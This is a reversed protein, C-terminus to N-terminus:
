PYSQPSGALTMPSGSPVPRVPNIEIRPPSRLETFFNAPESTHDMIAFCVEFAHRGMSLGELHSIVYGIKVEEVKSPQLHSDDFTDQYFLHHGISDLDPTPRFAQLMLHGDKSLGVWDVTPGPNMDAAQRQGIPEDVVRTQAGPAPWLIKGRQVAGYDADIRVQTGKFLLRPLWPFRVTLPSTIYNRYFDIRTTISPSHIGAILSIAYSYWLTVRIPGCRVAIKRARMDRETIGYPLIGFIRSYLSLNLRKILSPLRQLRHDQYTFDTPWGNTLGFRYYDTEIRDASPDYDVYSVKIRQPNQVTAIYAFREPGGLPDTIAIQVSGPPLRADASAVEGLDGLMVTIEDGPELRGSATAVAPCGPGTAAALNEPPDIQFPIPELRGGRRALVEIRDTSAGLLSRLRAADIVVPQWGRPSARALGSTALVLLIILAASFLLNDHARKFPRGSTL